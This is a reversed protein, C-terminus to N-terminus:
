STTRTRQSFPLGQDPDANKEAPSRAPDAFNGPSDTSPTYVTYGNKALILDTLDVNYMALDAESMNSLSNLDKLMDVTGSGSLFNTSPIKSFDLSESFGSNLLEDLPLTTPYGVYGQRVSEILSQPLNFSDVGLGPYATDNFYQDPTLYSIAMDLGRFDQGLPLNDTLPVITDPPLKDLKNTPLLTAIQSYDLLDPSIKILDDKVRELDIGTQDGWAYSLIETLPVGYTSLENYASILSRHLKEAVESLSQSGLDMYDAFDKGEMYQDLLVSYVQDVSLVTEVISSGTAIGIPSTLGTRWVQSAVEPHFSPSKYAVAALGTLSSWSDTVYSTALHSIKKEKSAKM